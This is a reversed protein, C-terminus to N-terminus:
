RRHCILPMQMGMATEARQWGLVNGLAFGLEVMGGYWAMDMVVV